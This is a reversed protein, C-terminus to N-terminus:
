SRRAWMVYSRGSIGLADWELHSFPRCPDTVDTGNISKEGTRKQELRLYQHHRPDNVNVQELGMSQQDGNIQYSSIESIRRKKRAINRAINVRVELRALEQSFFACAGLFNAKYDQSIVEKCNALHPDYSNIGKILHEVKQHVTIKKDSDKDLIIFCKTLLETYQEFPM